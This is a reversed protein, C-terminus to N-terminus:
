ASNGKAHEELRREIREADDAPVSPDGEAWGHPRYAALGYGSTPRGAPLSHLLREAAEEFADRLAAEGGERSCARAFAVVSPYLELATLQNLPARDVPAPEAPGPEGGALCREVAGDPWDLARAVEYYGRHIEDGPGTRRGNEYNGITRRTLGAAEALNEQLWGRRKRDRAICRGLHAWDQV